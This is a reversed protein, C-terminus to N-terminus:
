RYLALEHNCAERFAGLSVILVKREDDNLVVCSREEWGGKAPATGFRLETLGGTGLAASMLCAWNEDDQRTVGPRRFVQADRGESHERLVRALEWVSPTLMAIYYLHEVRGGHTASGVGMFMTPGRFGKGGRDVPEARYIVDVAQSYPQEVSLGLPYPKPGVAASM